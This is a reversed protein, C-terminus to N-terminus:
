FASTDIDASMAEAPVFMLAELCADFGDNVMPFISTRCHRGSPSAPHFTGPNREIEHNM